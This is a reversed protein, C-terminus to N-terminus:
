LLISQNIVFALIFNKFSDITELIKASLWEVGPPLPDYVTIKLHDHEISLDTKKISSLSNFM